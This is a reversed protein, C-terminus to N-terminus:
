ARPTSSPQSIEEVMEGVKKEKGELAVDAQAVIGVLRNGEDVVPLRRVQYAAMLELAEDLDQEPAVTVLRGSAIESVTTASADKGEAVLRMAIDRDTVMGIVQGSEDVVPLSGVDEARMRRAAEVVPLSPEVSTVAATMAEQVSKAM